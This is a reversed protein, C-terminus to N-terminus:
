EDDNQLAQILAKKSSYLYEEEIEFVDNITQNRTIDDDFTYLFKDRHIFVIGTVVMGIIKHLDVDIFWVLQGIKFKSKM